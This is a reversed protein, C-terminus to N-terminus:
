NLASHWKDAESDGADGYAVHPDLSPDPPFHLDWHAEDVGGGGESVQQKVESMSVQPQPVSFLAQQSRLPSGRQNVPLM